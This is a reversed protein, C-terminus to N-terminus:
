EATRHGRRRMYLLAFGLFLMGGALVFGLWAITGGTFALTGDCDSGVVGITVPNFTASGDPNSLPNSGPTTSAGAIGNGSSPIATVTYTGPVLHLVTDGAVTNTADYVVAHTADNVVKYTVDGTQDADHTLTLTGKTASTATCTADSPTVGADWAAGVPLCPNTFTYPGFTTTGGLVVGDSIGQASLSVAVTYTGDALSTTGGNTLTTQVSTGTNTATYVVEPDAETTISGETEFAANFKGSTLDPSCQTQTISVGFSCDTAPVAINFPWSAPNKLELTYGPAATAKVVYAGPPANNVVVTDGTDGTIGTLTTFGAPGDIEYVVGTELDVSITANDNSTNNDGNCTAPTVSPDGAEVTPICGTFSPADVEINAGGNISVEFTGGSTGTSGVPETESTGATVLYSNPTNVTSDPSTVVFTADTSSPNDFTISVDATSVNDVVTCTGTSDFTATCDTDVNFKWTEGNPYGTILYGSEAVATVTNSGDNVSVTTTPGGSTNVLSGNVYYDVGEAATLTITGGNGCTDTEQPISPTACAPGQVLKYATGWGGPILDEPLNENSSPTGGDNPGYLEGGNILAATEASNYYIDVQYQVGCQETLQSDLANLDPTQEETHTFIPQPWTPTTSNDWSPMTWAVIIYDECAHSDASLQADLTGSFNETTQGDSFEYGSTATATATYSLDTVNFATFSANTTTGESVGEPGQCTAATFVLAAAATKCHSPNTADSLHVTFTDVTNNMSLHGDTGASAFQHGSVATAVATWTSGSTTATAWNANAITATNEAATEPVGCSPGSTTISASADKPVPITCDSSVTTSATQKDGQTGDSWKVSITLSVHTNAAPAAINQTFTTTQDGYNQAAAAIAAHLPVVASNSTYSVEATEAWDNHVTWTVVAAGTATTCSSSADLTAMHASAPAAAGVLVLAIAILGTTIAAILKKM